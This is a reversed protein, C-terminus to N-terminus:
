VVHLPTRGGSRARRRRSSRRREDSRTCNSIYTSTPCTTSRARASRSGSSSGSRRPARIVLPPLARRRPRGPRAPRSAGRVDPDEYGVIREDEGSPVQPAAAHSARPPFRPRAGPSARPDPEGQHGPGAVARHPRPQLPRGLPVHTAASGRARPPRAPRSAGRDRARIQDRGHPPGDAPRHGEPDERRRRVDQRRPALRAGGPPGAGVVGEAADILEKIHARVAAIWEARDDESGADCYLTKEPTVIEFGFPKKEM